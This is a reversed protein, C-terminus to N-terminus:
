YTQGLSHMVVFDAGAIELTSKGAKLSNGTTSVDDLLLVQKGRILSENEVQLSDIETQFDRSGGDTKKPVKKSRFLVETGDIISPACLRKAITRIGSSVIGMEHSPIVCIVYEEDNSITSKLIQTFYKIGKEKEDKVDLILGSFKNWNPNTNDHWPHYYEIYFIESNNITASRNKEPAKFVKCYRTLNM